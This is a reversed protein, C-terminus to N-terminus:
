VIGISSNNKFKRVESKKQRYNMDRYAKIPDIEGGLSYRAMKLILSVDFRFAKKLEELAMLPDNNQQYYYLSERNILQSQIYARQLELSSYILSEIPDTINHSQDILYALDNPLDGCYEADSLENYILFLRFPNVSGADLDDDGYSSDNFHFGGLKKFKLLRGVIGEINSNPAHHGLDVLCKAKEGLHCSFAYSTGWDNNVTSYFSPEYLKHELLLFWDEPLHKYIKATSDLYRDLARRTHMQGPFNSGDPIWLTLSKSGLKLGYDICQLNHEIALDRVSSNTHTLSGFKYSINTENKKDQFTNSNVSDFELQNSLAYDIIESFDRVEDWPFHLSVKPTIKILSNLLSADELKEIINRPEGPMPFRAFRTGGTGLGWSPIAVSFNMAKNVLGESDMGSQDLFSKFLSFESLLKKESESKNVDIGKQLTCFIIIATVFDFRTLIRM